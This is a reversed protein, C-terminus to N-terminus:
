NVAMQYCYWDLLFMEIGRVEGERGWAGVGSPDSITAISNPFLYALFVFPAEPIGEGM